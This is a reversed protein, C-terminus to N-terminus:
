KCLRSGVEVGAGGSGAKAALCAVGANAGHRLAGGAYAVRWGTSQYYYDCIYTTSSGGSVSAPLFGYKTQQLTKQYEDSAPLTFGLYTYNAKTDDTFSTNSFSIYPQNAYINIADMWEWIEGYLNEIGRYSMYSGVKNDGNSRNATVNGDKNSQGTLNVPYYANYTNWTGSSWDTAGNGIVSQSNWNAYEILYLLQIASRGFYTEQTWESGRDTADTRAAARTQNTTPLIGAISSLKGGSVYAKYCGFYRFQKVTGSSLFWPYIEYGPLPIESIRWEHTTGTYTYKYYFLPVQVMVQGYSGDLPATCIEFKDGSKIFAKYVTYKEGNAMIDANLTLTDTSSIATVLAYTNDTRNWVADGVVVGLATFNTSTCILKMAAAATTAGHVRDTLPIPMGVHASDPAHIDIIMAYTDDTTNHVACGAKLTTDAFNGTSIVSNLTFTADPDKATIWPAVDGRNWSNTANLYFAVTGDDRVVCRKMKSQIPLSTWLAPNGVKLTSTKGTTSVSENWKVGYSYDDTYDRKIIGTTQSFSIVAIATIFLTILARKM